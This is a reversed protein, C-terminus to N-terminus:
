FRGGLSIGVLGGGLGLSPSVAVRQGRALRGGHVLLGIGAALLAGGAIGSALAMRAGGRGRAIAEDLAVIEAATLGEANNKEALDYVDDAAAHDVALGYSMVGLGALGVAGVAAGAIMLRRSSRARAEDVEAEAAASRAAGEREATGSTGAAAGEGSREATGSTGSGAGEGSGEVISEGSAESSAGCRGAAGHVALEAAVEEAFREFDARVRGPLSEQALVGAIIRGAACFEAVEGTTRGLARRARQARFAAMLRVDEASATVALSQWIKAAGRLDGAVELDMARVEADEVAAGSSAPEIARGRTVAPVAVVVWVATLTAVGRLSRWGSRETRGRARM